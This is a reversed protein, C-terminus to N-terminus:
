KQFLSRCDDSGYYLSFIGGYSKSVAIWVQGAVKIDEDHPIPLIEDLRKKHFQDALESKATMEQAKQKASKFDDELGLESLNERDEIESMPYLEPFAFRRADEYSNFKRFKPFKYRTIQLQCQKWTDYVGRNFGRQVAYFTKQDSGSAAEM